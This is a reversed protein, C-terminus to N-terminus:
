ENYVENLILKMRYKRRNKLFLFEKSQIPSVFSNPKLQTLNIYLLSFIKHVLNLADMGRIGDIFMTAQQGHEQASWSKRPM